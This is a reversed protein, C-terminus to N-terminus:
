VSRSVTGAYHRYIDDAVRRLGPAKTSNVLLVLGDMLAVVEWTVSPYSPPPPPEPTGEPTLSPRARPLLAILQEESLRETQARITGLPAGQRRLHGIVKARLVHGDTYRAGRGRGLPKPLLKQRIWHRLTRASVGALNQLEPMGYTKNGAM